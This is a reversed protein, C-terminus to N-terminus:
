LERSMEPGTDQYTRTIGFGVKEYFGVADAAVNSRATTCRRMRAQELAHEVMVRGHGRRQHGERIAVRRLWAVPGDVELAIAGVPEGDSLLLFSFHNPERISPHDRDYVGFQGRVEWLMRERIRHWWEWDESSEVLRLEHGM